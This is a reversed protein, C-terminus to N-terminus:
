LKSFGEPMLIQLAGGDAGTIEHRQLPLGFGYELFLRSAPASGETGQAFLKLALVKIREMSRQKGEITIKIKEIAIEQFVETVFQRKGPTGGRPNGSVGPVFRGKQDRKGVPLAPRSQLKPKIIGKVSMARGM